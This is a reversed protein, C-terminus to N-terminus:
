MADPGSRVKRLVLQEGEYISEYQGAFVARFATVGLKPELLPNGGFPHAEVGDIVMVGYKRLLRFALVVDELVDSAMQSGSVYVLDVREYYDASIERLIEQSRGVIVEVRDKFPALRLELDRRMTETDASVMTSALDSVSTDICLVRSTSATAVNKLLWQAVLGERPGVQM